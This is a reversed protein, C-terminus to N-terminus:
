DFKGSILHHTSTSKESYKKLKQISIIKGKVKEQFFAEFVFLWM